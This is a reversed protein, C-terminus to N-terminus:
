SNHKVVLQCLLIFEENTMAGKAQNAEKSCLGLNDISNDGGRSIPIIHDLEYTSSKTLDLPKGTLYCHPNEGFKELAQEVTIMNMSNGANFRHLKKYLLRCWPTKVININKFNYKRYNFESIKRVMPHDKSRKKYVRLRMKEKQNDGLHYTVTSRACNLKIAIQRHSLGSNKLEIIKEKLM